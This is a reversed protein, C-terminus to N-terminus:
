VDYWWQRTSSNNGAIKIDKILLKLISPFETADDEEERLIAHNIENIEELFKETSTLSTLYIAQYPLIRCSTAHV